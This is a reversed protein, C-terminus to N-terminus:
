LDSCELLLFGVPCVFSITARVNRQLAPVMRLDSSIKTLRDIFHMTDGFHSCRLLSISSPPKTGTDDSYGYATVREADQLLDFAERKESGIKALVAAKDAQLVVILRRGTQQRHEFLSKWARGVEAELLWCTEIGWSPDSQCRSIILQRLKRVPDVLNPDFPHPSKLVAAVLQPLCERIHRLSQRNVEIEEQTVALSDGFNSQQRVSDRSVVLVSPEAKKSTANNSEIGQEFSHVINTDTDLYPDDTAFKKTSQEPSSRRRFSFDRIRQLTSDVHRLYHSLQQVLDARMADMVLLRQTGPPYSLIGRLCHDRWEEEPNEYHSVPAPPPAESLHENAQQQHHHPHNLDQPVISQHQQISPQQPVYSPSYPLMQIEADRILNCLFFWRMLFSTIDIM